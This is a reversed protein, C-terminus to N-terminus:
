SVAVCSGREREIVVLRDAAIGAHLLAQTVPGTGAGLEIVAGAKECYRGRQWHARALSRSSPLFAGIKLPSRIWRRLRYFPHPKSRHKPSVPKRKRKIPMPLKRDARVM